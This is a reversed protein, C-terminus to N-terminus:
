QRDVEVLDAEEHRLSVHCGDLEIEVPDVLPANRVVRVRAGPTFGWTWSRQGLAGTASLDRVSGTDGPVMGSLTM